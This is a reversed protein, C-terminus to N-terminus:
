NIIVTNINTNKNLKQKEIHREIFGSNELSEIMLRYKLLNKDGEHDEIYEPGETYRGETYRGETDCVPTNTRSPSPTSSPTSNRSFIKKVTKM